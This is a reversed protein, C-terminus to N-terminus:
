VKAVDHEVARMSVLDSKTGVLIKCVGESAFQDIKQLWQNVNTFSDQLLYVDPLMGLTYIKFKSVRAPLTMLLLLVAPTM